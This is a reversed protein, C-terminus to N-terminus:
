NAFMLIYINENLLKIHELWFINYYRCYNVCHFKTDHVQDKCWFYIKQLTEDKLIEISKTGNQYFKWIPTLKEENLM